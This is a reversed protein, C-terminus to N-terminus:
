FWIIISRQLALDRRRCNTASSRSMSDASRQLQFIVLGRVLVCAICRLMRTSRASTFVRTLPMCSKVFESLLMPRNAVMAAEAAEARVANAHEVKVQRAVKRVQTLSVAKVTGIRRYVNTGKANKLRLCWTPESKASARCEVFLGPEDSVSYEIKEKGKPCVLGGAAIFEAFNHIVPM